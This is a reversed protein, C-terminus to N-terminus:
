AWRTPNVTIPESTSSVSRSDGRLYPDTGCIIDVPDGSDPRIVLKGDRALVKDKIEPLLGTLVSWLDWTDSVVSLIGNPYLDILREFTERESLEGGACMVSHETAAVSGGVLGNDGPYYANVYELAPLSDTGTFSLL